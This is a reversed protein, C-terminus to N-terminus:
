VKKIGRITDMSILCYIPAEDNTLTHVEVDYYSCCSYGAKYHILKKHLLHCKKNYSFTAPLTILTLMENYQLAHISTWHQKYFHIPSTISKKKKFNWCAILYFGIPNDAIIKVINNTIYHNLFYILIRGEMGEHDLLLESRLRVRPWVFQVVWGPAWEGKRERM